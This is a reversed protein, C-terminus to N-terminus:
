ACAGGLLRARVRPCKSAVFNVLVRHHTAGLCWSTEDQTIPQSLSRTASCCPGGDIHCVVAVERTGTSGLVVVTGCCGWQREGSGAVCVARKRADTQGRDSGDWLLLKIFIDCAVYRLPAHMHAGRARVAISASTIQRDELCTGLFSIKTELLRVFQFLLRNLIKERTKFSVPFGVIQTTAILDRDWRREAV